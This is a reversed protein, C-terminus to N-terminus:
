TSELMVETGERSLIFFGCHETFLGIEHHEPADIVLPYFLKASSGDEFTVNAVKDAEFDYSWLECRDNIGKSLLFDKIKQQWRKPLDSHQM